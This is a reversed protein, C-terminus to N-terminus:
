IYALCWFKWALLSLRILFLSSFLAFCFAFSDLQSFFFIYAIIESVNIIYCHSYNFHSYNNHLTLKFSFAGGNWRLFVFYVSLTLTLATTMMMM